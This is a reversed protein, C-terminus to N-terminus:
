REILMALVAFGYFFIFLNIILNRAIIRKKKKRRIDTFLDYIVGIFLVKLLYGFVGM